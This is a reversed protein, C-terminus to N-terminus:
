KKQNIESSAEMEAKNAAEEAEAVTKDGKNVQADPNIVHETEHVATLAVREDQTMPSENSYLMKELEPLSEFTAKSVRGKSVKKKIKM